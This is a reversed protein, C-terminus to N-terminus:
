RTFAYLAGLGVGAALLPGAIGGKGATSVVEGEGDPEVIFDEPPLAVSDGGIGGVPVIGVDSIAFDLDITPIEPLGLDTTIDGPLARGVGLIQEGFDSDEAGFILEAAKNGRLAPFDEQNPIFVPYSRYGYRDIRVAKILRPFPESWGVAQEPAILNGLTGANYGVMDTIPAPFGAVGYTAHFPPINAELMGRGLETPHPIQSACWTVQGVGSYQPIEYSQTSIPLYTVYFSQTGIGGLDEAYRVVMLIGGQRDSRGGLPTISVGNFWGAAPTRLTVNGRYGNEARKSPNVTVRTWDQLLVAPGQRYFHEALERRQPGTQGFQTRNFNVGTPDAHVQYIRVDCNFRPLTM